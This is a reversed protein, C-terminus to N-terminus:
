AGFWIVQGVIDLSQLQEKTLEQNTSPNEIDTIFKASGDLNMVLDGALTKGNANIVVTGTEFKKSTDILVTHGTETYKLKLPSTIVWTLCDEAKTGKQEFMEPNFSFPIDQSEDLQSVKTFQSTHEWLDEDMRMPGEGLAIWKLEFGTAIAIEAANELSTKAQQAAIRNVQAISLTATNSVKTAGTSKVAYALRGAITSLDIEDLNPKKAM